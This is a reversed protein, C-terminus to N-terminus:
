AAMEPYWDRLPSPTRVSLCFIGIEDRLYKEVLKVKLVPDIKKRESM